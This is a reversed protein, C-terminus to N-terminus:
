RLNEPAHEQLAQNLALGREGLFTTVVACAQESAHLSKAMVVTDDAYRAVRYGKGLRQALGELAINALLPSVVGGVINCVKKKLTSIELVNISGSSWM